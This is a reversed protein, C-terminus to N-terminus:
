GPATRVEALSQKWLELDYSSPPGTPGQMAEDVFTRFSPPYMHRLNRWLARAGPARMTDQTTLRLTHFAPEPTLGREHQLFTDQRSILQARLICSFQVLEVETLDQGAMGKAYIRALDPDAYSLVM